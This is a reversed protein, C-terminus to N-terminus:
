VDRLCSRTDDAIPSIRHWQSPQAPLKSWATAVM